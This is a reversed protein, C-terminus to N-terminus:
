TRLPQAPRRFVSFHGSALLTGPARYGRAPIFGRHNDSTSGEPPTERQRIMASIRGPSEQREAPRHRNRGTVHAAADRRDRCGERVVLIALLMGAAIVTRAASLTVPDSGALLHEILPYHSAWMLVTIGLSANALTGEPLRAASDFARLWTFRPLHSSM